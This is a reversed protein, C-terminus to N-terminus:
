LVKPPEMFFVSRAEAMATANPKLPAANAFVFSWCLVVPSLVLVLVLVSVLVLVLVAVLVDVAFGDSLLWFLLDPAAAALAAREAASLLPDEPDNLLANLTVFAVALLM